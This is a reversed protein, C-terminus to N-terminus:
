QLNGLDLAWFGGPLQVKPGWGGVKSAYNADSAWNGQLNVPATESESYVALASPGSGVQSNFKPVGVGFKVQMVPRGLGLEGAYKCPHSKLNM